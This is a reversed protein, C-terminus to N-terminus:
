QPRHNRRSRAIGSGHVLVLAPFPGDGNPLTLTAPLEWEGTGVKAEKESYTDAKAYDPAKWDAAPDKAPAFNLGSIRQKSDFVVRANLEMKEFSCPVIVIEYPGKKELRMAGRSKLPGFQKVLSKWTAELKDPPFVKTMTEDYNKSAEAYEGKITLDLFKNAADRLAPPVLPPKEQALAMSALFLFPIAVVFLKM